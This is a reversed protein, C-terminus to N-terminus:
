FKFNLDVQVLNDKKKNSEIPKSYFYNLNVNSNYGLGWTLSLKYGKVDTSGGYFDSDPYTDLISNKEIYRKAFSIQFEGQDSVKEHGIKIGAVYGENGKSESIATNKFLTGFLGVSKVESVLISLPNEFIKTTEFDIGSVRYNYAYKSSVLTNAKLYNTSNPRNPLESTGRINKFDFQNLALWLKMTADDNRIDTRFSYYNLKQDLANNNERLLFFGGKLQTRLNSTFNKDFTLTFGEQNIDSDWIADNSLFFPSKIKGLAFTIYRNLMLDGYAYDFYIDKKSFNDTMTQNTSRSDNNEGTALGIYVFAADNIKSNINFRARIRTRKREYTLNDNADHQYRIRLDGGITVYQLWLPLTRHIGKSIQRKTEEETQYRIEHATPGDIIGKEVLHDLLIDIDSSYVATNFSFIFFMTILKKFSRKNM